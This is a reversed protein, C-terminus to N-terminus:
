VEMEFRLEKVDELISSKLLINEMEGPAVKLKKRSFVKNNKDDILFDIRCTGCTGLAKFCRVAIDEVESRVKSDLKAPIRSSAPM